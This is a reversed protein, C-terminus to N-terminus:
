EYKQALTMSQFEPQTWVYWHDGLPRFGRITPGFKNTQPNFAVGTLDHHFGEQTVVYLIGGQTVAPLQQGRLKNWPIGTILVARIKGEFPPGSTQMNWGHSAVFADISALANTGQIDPPSMDDWRGCGSLLAVAMLAAPISIKMREGFLFREVVQMVPATIGNQTQGVRQSPKKM